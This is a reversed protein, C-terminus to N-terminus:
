RSFHLSSGAASSLRRLMEQMPAGCCRHHHLHCAPFGAASAVHRSLMQWYRCGHGVRECPVNRVCLLLRDSSWLTMRTGGDMGLGAAAAHQRCVSGALLPLQWCRRSCLAASRAPRTPATVAVACKLRLPAAQVYLSSGGETGRTAVVVGCIVQPKPVGPSRRM